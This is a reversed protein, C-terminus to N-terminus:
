RTHKISSGMWKTCFREKNPNTYSVKHTIVYLQKGDLVSCMLERMHFEVETLAKHINTQTNGEHHIM